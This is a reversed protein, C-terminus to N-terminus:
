FEVDDTNQAAGVPVTTAASSRTLAEHAQRPTMNHIADASYGASRLQERMLRTMAFPMGQQAPRGDGM